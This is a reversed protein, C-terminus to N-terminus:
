EYRPKPLNSEQRRSQASSPVRGNNVFAPAESTGQARVKEDWDGPKFGAARYFLENPIDVVELKPQDM